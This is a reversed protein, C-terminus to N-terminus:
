AGAQDTGVARVQEVIAEAVTEARTEPLWHGADLPVFRYPGSVFEATKRAAALRLAFDRRGWLYTTPVRIPRAPGATASRLSAAMARYWGLAATLAGPERMRAVYRAVAERPLGSRALTGGLGRSVLQEPLWPLQFFAMYWSALAQSSHTFAWAMAAPHPTALVVLSRVREPHASAFAWAVAGGWDHGVVHARDVGAADLLAVVDLTLEHMRYAARGPPRAAPSYGRQDPALTRLGAAHLRPAVADWATHDQPFGHLLVVVEGDPPGEDAVDFGLGDRGFHEM